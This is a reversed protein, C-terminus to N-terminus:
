SLLASASQPAQVSMIHHAVGLGHFEEDDDHEVNEERYTHDECAVVVDVVHVDAFADHNRVDDDLEAHGHVKGLAGM